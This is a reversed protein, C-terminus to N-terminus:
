GLGPYGLGKLGYDEQSGSFVNLAGTLVYYSIAPIGTLGAVVQFPAASGGAYFYLDTVRLDGAFSGSPALRLKNSGLVGNATFGVDLYATGTNTVEFFKSVFPFSVHGPVNASAPTSSQTVFPLGSAQYEAVNNPGSPRQQFSM